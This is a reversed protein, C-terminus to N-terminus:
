GGQSSPGFEAATRRRALRDKGSPGAVARMAGHGVVVVAVYTLAVAVVPAVGPGFTIWEPYKAAFSYDRPPGIAAAVAVFVALGRRGFRRAVRWTVLYIPACSVVLGLYFLGLFGPSPDLPVRWWGASNGLAIVGVGLVGVVAGGALAGVVRRATARTFYAVAVLAVLYGGTMLVLQRMSM